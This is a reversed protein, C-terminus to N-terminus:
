DSEKKFGKAVWPVTVFFVLYCVLPPLAMLAGRSIWYNRITHDGESKPVTTPTGAVVDFIDRTSKTPQGPSFSKPIQVAPAPEIPAAAAVADWFDPIPRDRVALVLIVAMWSVSVVIYLRQLGRRYNLNLVAIM